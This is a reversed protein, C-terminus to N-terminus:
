TSTCGDIEDFTCTMGPECDRRVGARKRGRLASAPDDGNGALFDVDVDDVRGDVHGVDHHVDLQQDLDALQDVDLQHQQLDVHLFQDVVVVIQVHLSFWLAV